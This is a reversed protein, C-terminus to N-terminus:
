DRGRSTALHPPTEVISPHLNSFRGADAPADERDVPFRLLLLLPLLTTTTTPPRSIWLARCPCPSALSPHPPYVNSVVWSREPLNLPELWFFPKSSPGLPCPTGFPAWAVGLLRGMLPGLVGWSAGWELRLRAAVLHGVETDTVGCVVRFRQLLRGDVGDELGHLVRPVGEELRIEELQDLGIAGILIGGVVVAAAAGGRRVRAGAAAVAAVLGGCLRHPPHIHRGDAEREVKEEEEEKEEEKDEEEDEEEEGTQPPRGVQAINEEGAAAKEGVLLQSLLSRVNRRRASRGRLRGFRRISGSTASPSGTNGFPGVHMRMCPASGRAEPWHTPAM